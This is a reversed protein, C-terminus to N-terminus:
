DPIMEFVGQLILFMSVAIVIVALLGLPVAQAIPARTPASDPQTAGDGSTPAPTQWDVADAQEDEPPMNVKAVLNTSDTGSSRDPQQAM